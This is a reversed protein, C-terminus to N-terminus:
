RSRRGDSADRQQAAAKADLIAKALGEPDAVGIFTLGMYSAKVEVDGSGFREGFRPYSVEVREIQEVPIEERTSGLIGSQRVVRSSTVFDRRGVSEFTGVILAAVLVAVGHRETGGLVLVGVLGIIGVCLARWPARQGFAGARAAGSLDLVNAYVASSPRIEWIVPEGTRPDVKLTM